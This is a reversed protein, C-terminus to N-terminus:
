KINEKWTKSNKLSIEEYCIKKYFLAALLNIYPVRNKVSSPKLNFFAIDLFLVYVSKQIDQLYAKDTKSPINNWNIQQECSQSWREEHINERALSVGRAYTSQFLFLEDAKELAKQLYSNDAWDKEILIVIFAPLWHDCQHLPQNACIFNIICALNKVTTVLRDVM